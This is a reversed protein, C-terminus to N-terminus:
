DVEHETKKEAGELDPERQLGGRPENPRRQKRPDARNRDGKEPAVSADQPKINRDLNKSEEGLDGEQGGAGGRNLGKDNDPM